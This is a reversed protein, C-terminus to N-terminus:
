QMLAISALPLQMFTSYERAVAIARAELADFSRFPKLLIALTNKKQTRKWTGLVLGAVVLTPLFVGNNGPVISPAYEAALM